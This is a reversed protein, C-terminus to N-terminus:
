KWEGFFCQLEVTEKSVFGRTFHTKLSKLISGASFNCGFDSFSNDNSITVKSLGNVLM